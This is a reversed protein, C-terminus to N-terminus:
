FDLTDLFSLDQDGVNCTPGASTGYIPPTKGEKAASFSQFSSMSSVDMSDYASDNEPPESDKPKNENQQVLVPQRRSLRSSFLNLSLKSRKAPQMQAQNNETSEGDDPTCNFIRNRTPENESHSTEDIAVIPQKENANRTSTSPVPPPNVIAPPKKPGGFGFRNLTLRNLPRKLPEIDIKPIKTEPVGSLEREINDLAQSCELDGDDSMADPQVSDVSKEIPQANPPDTDLNLDIFNCM